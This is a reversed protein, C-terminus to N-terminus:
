PRTAPTCSKGAFANIVDLLTAFGGTGIAWTGVVTGVEEPLFVAAGGALAGTLGFGFGACATANHGAFCPSADLAAAAFGTGASIAALGLGSAGVTATSLAGVGVAVEGIGTALSAAGLAVGVGVAIQGRHADFSAVISGPDSIICSFFGSCSTAVGAARAHSAAQDILAVQATTCRGPTYRNNVDVCQGTPDSGNVPDGGTFAYPTGTLDARPDMSLFQETAPDYYRHVLYLLTTADTYSGEFGFPTAISCTSCSNGYSDYSMSGVVSGTNGIQERVGTTDSVLYTPTSGAITIQELPASGLSPGYLYYNAGDELLKPVSGITNWTFQQTSGGAPTDSMRLGDGNYGYTTTVTSNINACSYGSSNAATECVLNGAQNWGYATPHGGSPTSSLREGVTSSSFATAGSPPSGCSGTSSGTWCLQSDANYSFNTAAAGSPTVSTIERGADYTYSATTGTTVRNLPDYGYTTASGTAPTTRGIMEDANRTLATLDTNTSSITTSTDTLADTNDYAYSVSASTGSPFSIKTLNGDNDYTFATANGSGLWDTMQTPQNAANYTYTVLGTGSSANQCTTTGSNPYSVCTPNGNADYKYTVVNGAGTTVSDLRELGDYAYTTTGTGDTMQTRNNDADYGYTVAHPQTYGSATNSYSASTLRNAADYGYTTTGSGDTTTILNGAGDYTHTTVAQATTNPPAEEILHDLADFYSTTTESLGNTVETCYTTGTPASPCSAPAIDYTDTTTSASSSGYGQTVASTRDDADYTTKTVNSLADTVQTRNNDADYTYSTTNGSADTTSTVNGDSDHAWTATDAVRPSGFSPCTVSGANANPSVECYREGLINYADSTTDTLSGVALSTSTLDGYTDYTYNTTHSNPDTISEVDGALYGSPCSTLCVTYTTTTDSSNLGNVVRKTLNGNADYTNVTEIGLPDTVTLPEDFANYTYVTEHNLADTSTLLNGDSDFTETTSHNNPDTVETQGLSGSDYTYTWTAASATGAGKTLSTLMGEVYNQTEVNGHPDTITTTGGAQSLNAGSYSYTTTLGAPDTQSVVRGSSDYSNSVKVGADPGGSQGNPLTMTLMQHSGDYTFSTVHSLPDTVTTLNGSSDYGYATQNNAPDTVQSVLGNTGYSLTLTRNGPDTVTTLQSSTNYTLSTTNGNRDAISILQGSSSFKYTLNHQKVFTWTGGSSSLTSDSWQPESYTSGSVSATVQSGDGDTVTASGDGNVSLHMDYSSSWGYGFIGETASSLSNYTRTLHLGPGRGDISADTFSHWFDGSVADVPYSGCSCGHYDKSVDSTALALGHLFSSSGGEVVERVVNDGETFFVNGQQDTGMGYPLILGASTASGGDGRDYGAWTQSGAITYIDGATMSRGYLTGTAVPVVRVLSNKNDSILLNGQPDSDVFEPWNLQASTAVTGDSSYGQSGDGAITYIDGVTMSQGYFTGSSAAVVRVVENEWDPILANGHSDVSVQIPVQVEASTGIGGDGTYGQTGNGAITYLYGATMSQGYFTGTTAAIVRYRANYEEAMLINGHSDVAVGEPVHLVASTALIGDADSSGNPNGGISYMDGATMSQGYFTGTATALVEVRTNGSDGIVLNGHPDVALGQATCIQSSTASAGSTFGCTGNGAVTYIDGATMSQGYFTGTSAAIVRVDAHNLEAIVLNGHADVTLAAAGAMEASVAPGGDGTHGTITNGGVRYIDNLNSVVDASSRPISHLQVLVIVVPLLMSAVALSIGCRLQRSAAWRTARTSTSAMDLSVWLPEDMM